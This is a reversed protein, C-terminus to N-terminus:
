FSTIELVDDILLVDHIRSFIISSVWFLIRTLDQMKQMAIWGLLNFLTLRLKYHAQVAGVVYIYCDM